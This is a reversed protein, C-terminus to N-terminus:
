KYELELRRDKKLFSKVVREYFNSRKLYVIIKKEIAIMSLESMREQTQTNRMYTHIRKLASFAREASASTAPVTIILQLLKVLESFAVDLSNENIFDLLQFVDFSKLEPSTYLSILQNKLNHMDFFNGYYKQLSAFDDLPFKKQFKDYCKNNLLNFFRLKFMESYRDNLESSVNDIVQIFIRKFEIKPCSVNRKVKPPSNNQLSKFFFTDFSSQFDTHLWDDFEKLKEICSGLDVQSKQIVLYLHDTKQFIRLFVELFFNFNFSNLVNLFNEVSFNTEGDWDDVNESMESFLTILNSKEEFVTDVVRSLYNWRTLCIQPLRKKCFKDYFATKKTSNNFFSV